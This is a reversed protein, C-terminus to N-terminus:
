KARQRMRRPIATRKGSPRRRGGRSRAGLTAGAICAAYLCALQKWTDSLRPGGGLTLSCLIVLLTMWVAIMVGRALTGTQGRCAIHTGLWGGCAYALCVLFAGADAGAIGKEQLLAGVACVLIVTVAAAALGIWFRRQRMVSFWSM